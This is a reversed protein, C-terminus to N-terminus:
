NIKEVEVIYYFDSLYNPHVCGVYEFSDFNLDTKFIVPCTLNCMIGFMSMDTVFGVFLDEGNTFFRAIIEKSGEGLIQNIEQLKPSILLVDSYEFSSCSPKVSGNLKAVEESNEDLIVSYKSNNDIKYTKGNCVFTDPNKYDEIQEGMIELTSQYDERFKLEENSRDLTIYDFRIIENGYEDTEKKADEDRVSLCLHTQSLHSVLIDEYKNKLYHIEISFDNLSITGVAWRNNSNNIGLFRKESKYLYSFVVLGDFRHFTCSKDNKIKHGDDLVKKRVISAFDIEEASSVYGRSTIIAYDSCKEITCIEEFVRNREEEWPLACSSLSFLIVFLLTISITKTIIQISRKM